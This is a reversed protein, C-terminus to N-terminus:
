TITESPPATPPSKTPRTAGLEEAGVVFEGDAQGEARQDGGDDERASQPAGRADPRVGSDGDQDDEQGAVEVEEAADHELHHVAVLDDGAIEVALQADGVVAVRADIVVGGALRTWPTM